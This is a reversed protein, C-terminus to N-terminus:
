WLRERENDCLLRKGRCYQLAPTDFVRGAPWSTARSTTNQLGHLFKTRCHSHRAGLNPKRFISIKLNLCRSYLTFPCDVVALLRPQSKKSILTMEPQAAHSESITAQFLLLRWIGNSTDRSIKNVPKRSRYVFLKPIMSICDQRSLKKEVSDPGNSIWTHLHPGCCQILEVCWSYLSGLFCQLVQFEKSNPLDKTLTKAM